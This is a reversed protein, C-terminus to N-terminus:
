NKNEVMTEGMVWNARGVGSCDDNDNDDDGDDASSNPDTVRNQEGQVPSQQVVLIM